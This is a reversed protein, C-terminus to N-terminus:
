GAIGTDNTGIWLRGDDAVFLKMVSCIREDLDSKEFRYGDYRYLGSYTGVWIYGDPTQAMTNIQESVLGDYSDYEVVEYEALYDVVVAKSTFPFLVALFATLFAISFLTGIKKM